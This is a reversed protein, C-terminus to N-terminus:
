FYIKSQEVYKFPCVNKVQVKLEECSSFAYVLFCKKARIVM